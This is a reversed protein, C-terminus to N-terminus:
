LRGSGVLEGFEGTAPDFDLAEFSQNPDGSWGILMQMRTEVSPAASKRWFLWWAQQPESPSREYWRAYLFETKRGAYREPQKIYHRLSGDANLVLANNPLACEEPPNRIFTVVFYQRNPSPYIAVKDAACWSYPIGDHVWRAGIPGGDHQVESNSYPFENVSFIGNCVVGTPSFFEVSQISM